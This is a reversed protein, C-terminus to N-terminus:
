ATLHRMPVGNRLITGMSASRPPLMSIHLPAQRLLALHDLANDIDATSIGIEEGKAAIAAEVVEFGTDLETTDNLQRYDTCFLSRTSLIGGLAAASTYHYVNGNFPREFSKLWRQLREQGEAKTLRGIPNHIKVVGECCATGTRSNGVKRGKM